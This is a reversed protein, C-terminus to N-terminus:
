QHPKITAEITGTDFETRSQLAMLNL